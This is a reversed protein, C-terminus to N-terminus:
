FRNVYGFHIKSTRLDFQNQDDKGLAYFLSFIGGRTQFNIGAGLGTFVTSSFEEGANNEVYAFDSFLTLYDYTGIMFRYELTGIGYRSAYISQENFGRLTNLGGIRYLENTFLKGGFIAETQLGVKIIHRPFVRIWQDAFIQWGYQDQNADESKRKGTIGYGVLKFGKTPVIIRNTQRLELGLKYFTTNFSQFSTSTADSLLVNSGRYSVGGSIFSGSEILYKLLGQADSNVFTSDQRFIALNGELWIPTRFLYPIEFDFNLSQVSEDPRRWRINIEEGKKLVHLLRLHLDGTFVVNGDKETNLGVVGDIQNSKVEELYLYLIAASKTFAVAPPRAMNLYEIQAALEPLERLYSEKYLMGKRYRLDYKLVNGPFRDFGKIVISDITILPGPEINLTLRLSDRKLSFDDTTVTAFPYGNEELYYLYQDIRKRLRSSDLVGETDKLDSVLPLAFDEPLKLHFRKGFIRAGPSISLVTLTDKQSLTARSMLYAEAFLIIKIQTIRSHLDASDKVPGALKLIEEKIGAAPDEDFQVALFKQSYAFPSVLLLVSILLHKIM